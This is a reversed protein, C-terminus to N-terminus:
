NVNVISGNSEVIINYSTGLPAIFLKMDVYLLGSDENSKSYDINLIQVYPLYKEVQSQLRSEFQSITIDSFNEFLLRKIGIGFDGDMIREGPNTLLLMLFNQKSLSKLDRILAYGQETEFKLPLKPSFGSM